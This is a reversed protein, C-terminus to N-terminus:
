ECWTVGNRVTIKDLTLSKLGSATATPATECLHLYGGGQDKMISLIGTEYSNTVEKQCDLPPDLIKRLLPRWGELSPAGVSSKILKGFFQMFNLFNQVTPHPCGGGRLDAM